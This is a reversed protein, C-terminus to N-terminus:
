AYGAPQRQSQCQGLPNEQTRHQRNATGSLKSVARSPTHAAHSHRKSIRPTQLRSTRTSTYIAVDADMGPKLGGCMSGLGLTKAPGARTMQALEYLSLEKDLSGISTQSLVKDKHKFANIQNDRAKRSMLWKIVRPYRTFPGANPHDTTIYCRMPDKMMLPIELGIAWQIACVSIGPSYIYPVVGAATELEVDCNAWKLHNLGTLHHEFPGDATMTTTEDLTVNGTDITINKNKNVYDTIEKAGSEFDGWNTGKYSHFQSHTLHMVTERGFKNRAKMGEALALTDAHDPLM